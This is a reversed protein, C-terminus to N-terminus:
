SGRGTPSPSCRYGGGCVLTGSITPTGPTGGFARTSSRGRAPRTRGFRTLQHDGVTEFFFGVAWLAVGLLGSVMGGRQFMAIQVPLSVFWQTLGQPLYIHTIAFGTRAAGARALLEEYRSDEGEHGRLRLFIHGALRLGWCATLLLILLRRANAGEGWGLACAVAAIAVFGAGWTVDVASHRGGRLAAGLTVAQLAAATALTIPLAVLFSSAAFGTM